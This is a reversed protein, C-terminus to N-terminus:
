MPHLQPPTIETELNQSVTIQNPEDEPIIGDHNTKHWVLPAFIYERLSMVGAALHLAWYQLTGGLLKGARMAMGMQKFRHHDALLSITLSLILNSLLVLNTLLVNPDSLQRFSFLIFLYVTFFPTLTGCIMRLWFNLWIRGPFDKLGFWRQRLHVIQTIMLGKYWRTRQQIWAKPQEPCVEHTISDILKMRVGNRVLRVSLEADETVNYPDWGGVQRLTETAIYFSNGGLGFPMNNGSLRAIHHEFWDNYEAAFFRTLVNHNGNSIRIVSQLCAPEPLRAFHQAANMLQTPEPHSEADFVTLYNGTAEALGYQLARGKTFPPAPPITIVRFWKPLAVARLSAATVADGQEVIVLVELLETPYELRSLCAITQHIVTGEEKLPFLITFTPLQNAPIAAMAIPQAKPPGGKWLIIRFAIMVLFNAVACWFLLMGVGNADLAGVVMVSLIFLAFATRSVRDIVSYASDDGLQEAHRLTTPDHSPATTHHKDIPKSM